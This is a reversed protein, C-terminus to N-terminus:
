YERFCDGTFTRHTIKLDNKNVFNEFDSTIKLFTDETIIVALQLRVKSKSFIIEFERVALLKQFNISEFM